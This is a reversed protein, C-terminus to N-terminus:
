RSVNETNEISARMFFKTLNSISAQYTLYFAKAVTLVIAYAKEKSASHFVFCYFRLFLSHSSPPLHSSLPSSSPSSSSTIVIGEM